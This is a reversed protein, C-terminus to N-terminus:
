IITNRSDAPNPPILGRQVELALRREDSELRAIEERTLLAMESDPTETELLARNADLDSLTKVYAAGTAVLEKLRSYERSLEQARVKHNFANPDSLAAEVEALRRVIRDIHPRLDM